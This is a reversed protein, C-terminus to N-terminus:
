RAASLFRSAMRWRRQLVPEIAATTCAADALCEGWANAADIYKNLASEGPTGAAALCGIELREVPVEGYSARLAKIRVTYQEYSLGVALQRRLADLSNLFADVQRPCPRDRAAAEAQKGPAAAASEATADGDSGCAPLSLAAAALACALLSLRRAAPPAPTM